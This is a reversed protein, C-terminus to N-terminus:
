KKEIFKCLHWYHLIRPSFKIFIRLFDKWWPQAVFFTKIELLELVDTKDNQPYM